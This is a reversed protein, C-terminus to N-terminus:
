FNIKNEVAACALVWSQKDSLRAVYYNYPNMSKSVTEAIKSAFVNLHSIKSLFSDLKNFSLEFSLRSVKSSNAAAVIANAIEQARKYEKTGKTLM